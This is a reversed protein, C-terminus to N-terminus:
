SNVDPLPKGQIELVAKYVEKEMTLEGIKALLDKKEARHKADVDRPHSHLAETGRPSSTTWGNTSRPSPSTTPDPSNPLPPEAKSSTWSRPPRAAPPGANSTTLPIV